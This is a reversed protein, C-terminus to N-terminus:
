LLILEEFFDNNWRLHYPVHYMIHGVNNKHKKPLVGFLQTTEWKFMENPWITPKAFKFWWCWPKKTPQYGDKVEHTARSDPHWIVQFKKPKLWPFPSTSPTPVNHLHSIWLSYTLNYPNFSWLACSTTNYKFVSAFSCWAECLLALFITFLNKHSSLTPSM